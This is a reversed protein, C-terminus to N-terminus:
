TKGRQENTEPPFSLPMGRTPNLMKTEMMQGM